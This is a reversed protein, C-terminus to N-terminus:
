TIQNPLPAVTKKSGNSVTQTEFRKLWLVKWHRQCSLKLRQAKAFLSSNISVNTSKKQASRDYTLPM